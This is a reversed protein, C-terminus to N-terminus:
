WTRPGGPGRWRGPDIRRRADPDDVPRAPRGGGIPATANRLQLAFYVLAATVIVDVYFGWGLDSFHNIHFLFKLVLFAAAVVALIFRTHARGGGIAPVDTQPSFREIALDAVVALAAIFALIGLWGDPASTASFTASFPGVSSTM